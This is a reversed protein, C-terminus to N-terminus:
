TSSMMMIDQYLLLRMASSSSVKLLRMDKLMLNFGSFHVMLTGWLLCKLYM